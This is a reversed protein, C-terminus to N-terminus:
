RRTLAAQGPVRLRRTWKEWVFPYNWDLDHTERLARRIRRRRRYAGDRWEHFQVLLCRVNGLRGTEILRELVEYESGEINLKLLDLEARGIEDLVEAVDRLRVLTSPPTGPISEAYVSSGPGAQVLPLAANAADLGYDFCRVKPNAAFRESLEAFFPPNPEFLYLNCDYKEVIRAAWEGDFAGADFVVSSSDIPADHLLDPEQMFRKAMRLMTPRYYQAEFIAATFADRSRYRRRMCWVYPALLARKIRFLNM